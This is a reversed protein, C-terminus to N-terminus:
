LKGSKNNRPNENAGSRQIIKEEEIEMKAEVTEKKSVELNLINEKNEHFSLEAGDEQFEHNKTPGESNGLEKHLHLTTNLLGTNEETVTNNTSEDNERKKDGLDLSNQKTDKHDNIDAPDRQFEQKEKSEKRSSDETFKDVEEKNDQSDKSSRSTTRLLGTDEGTVTNNSSESNEEKCDGLNFSNKKIDTHVNLNNGDRQIEQKEKSEKRTIDEPLNDVEEKNDEADKSPRSTTNSLGTNKETVASNTSEGNERKSDGLSFSNEKSDKHVNSDADDRQFEHKDVLKETTMNDDEEKNDESDKSSSLTTSTNSRSTKRTPGTEGKTEGSNLLMSTMDDEIQIETNENGNGNQPKPLAQVSQKEEDELMSTLAFKFEELGPRKKPDISWGYYVVEKLCLPFEEPIEPTKNTQKADFVQFFNGPFPDIGSFLEFIITTLSYIDASV